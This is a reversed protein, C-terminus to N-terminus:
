TTVPWSVSTPPEDGSLSDKWTFPALRSRCDLSTAFITRARGDFVVVLEGGDEDLPTVDGDAADPAKVIDPWCPQVGVPITSRRPSVTVVFVFPSTFNPGPVALGCPEFSLFAALGM